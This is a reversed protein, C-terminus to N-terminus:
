KQERVFLLTDLFWLIVHTDAGWCRFCIGHLISLYFGRVKKKMFLTFQIIKCCLLGVKILASSFIYLFM